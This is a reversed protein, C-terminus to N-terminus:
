AAKDFVQGSICVGTDNFVVEEITNIVYKCNEPTNGKLLYDFIESYIYEKIILRLMEIYKSMADNFSPYGAKSLGVEDLVDGYALDDERSEEVFDDYVPKAINIFEELSLHLSYYEINHGNVQQGFNLERCFIDSIDITRNNILIEM